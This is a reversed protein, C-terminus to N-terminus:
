NLSYYVVVFSIYVCGPVGKGIAPFWPYPNTLERREPKPQEPLKPQEPSPEDPQNPFPNGPNGTRKDSYEQKNKM